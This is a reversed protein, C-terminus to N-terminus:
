VKFTVTKIAKEPCLLVCKLCGQCKAIEKFKFRIGQIENNEKDKVIDKYFLNKPCFNGRKDLCDECMSCKEHDIKISVVQDEFEISTVEIANRPCVQVCNLCAKCKSYDILRISNEFYIAKSNCAHLCRECRVCLEQNIQVPIFKEKIRGM